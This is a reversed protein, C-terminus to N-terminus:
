EVAIGVLRKSYKRSEESIKYGWDWGGNPPIRNNVGDWSQQWADLAEPNICTIKVETGLTSSFFDGVKEFVANVASKVNPM